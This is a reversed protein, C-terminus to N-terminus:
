GNRPFANKGRVSGLWNTTFTFTGASSADLYCVVVDGLHFVVNPTHDRRSIEVHDDGINANCGVKGRDIGLEPICVAKM